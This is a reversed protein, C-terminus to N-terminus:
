IETPPKYGPPPPPSPEIAEIPDGELPPPPPPAEPVTPAPPPPPPAAAELQARCARTQDALSRQKDQQAKTPRARALREANSETWRAFDHEAQDACTLDKCACVVDRTRRLHGIADSSTGSSGSCAALAAVMGLSTVFRM